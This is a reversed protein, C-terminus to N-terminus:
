VPTAVKIADCRANLCEGTTLSFGFNHALCRLVPGEATNEIVAGEALDEGAHPCYRTVEFTRDGSQLTVMENPDRKTEYDQVAQLADVDAHKLLGVLYDNYVDPCRWSQFRLSLFLDEWRAEGSLVAELWRAEMTLKYQVAENSRDKPDLNVVTREPGLQVDWMGGDAGSVDFRVTMAIRDLFYSNMGGLRTFHEAFREALGSGAAPDPHAAWVDAIEQARSAAYAELHNAVAVSDDYAFGEWHADRTVGHSTSALQVSDGPLMLLTEQGPIRDRLWATAQAQDPFIGPEPIQANHHALTPDLFCPPGAYPLVLRPKASRVLRTVAKFKNGRKDACIKAVIEPPYDYCIPHWSAGSMQVAMLDLPGGAEAMARRTQALSIRADNTHMISVGDAVILFAADHCMPSQEPIVTLWDGRTNLPLRRWAELEIVHRVGAATLRNRCTPAPYKPIVVRVGAPLAALFALDMHDLHEHSVAVWDADLLGPVTRLHSNDPFQFWSGLFAGGPSLWPDCLLKLGSAEVRLGAHGLSTVLPGDM